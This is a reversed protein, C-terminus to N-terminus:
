ADAMEQRLERYDLAADGIESRADIRGSTIQREVARFLRDAARVFVPHPTDRPSWDAPLESPSFGQRTSDYLEDSM